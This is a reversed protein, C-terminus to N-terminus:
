FDIRRKSMGEQFSVYGDYGRELQYRNSISSKGAKGNSEGSIHGGENWFLICTKKEEDNRTRKLTSASNVEGSRLCNGCFTKLLMTDRSIWNGTPDSLKKNPEFTVFNPIWSKRFRFTSDFIPHQIKERFPIPHILLFWLFFLKRCSNHSRLDSTTQLNWVGGFFVDLTIRPPNGKKQCLSAVSRLAVHDWSDVHPVGNSPPDGQHNKSIRPSAYHILLIQGGVWSVITAFFIHQSKEPQVHKIQKHHMFSDNTKVPHYSYWWSNLLSDSRDSMM